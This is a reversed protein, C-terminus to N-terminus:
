SRFISEATPEAGPTEGTLAADAANAAATRQARLEEILADRDRETRGDDV